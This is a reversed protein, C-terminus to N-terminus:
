ERLHIKEVLYKNDVESDTNSNHKFGYEIYTPIAYLCIITEKNCKKEHYNAWETADCTTTIFNVRTASVMFRTNIIKEEKTYADVFIVKEDSLLNGEKIDGYLKYNAGGMGGGHSLKIEYVEKVSTKIGASPQVPTGIKIKPYLM